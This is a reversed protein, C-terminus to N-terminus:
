GGRARAAAPSSPRWRPAPRLGSSHVPLYGAARACGAGAQCQTAFRMPLRAPRLWIPYRGPLLERHARIEPRLLLAPNVLIARYLAITRSVWAREAAYHHRALQIGSRAHRRLAGNSSALYPAIGREWDRPVRSAEKDRQAAHYRYRALITDAKRVPYKAAIRLFFEADAAYSIDERWPGVSRMVWARFFAAPQPIYTLKGVYEVLSFPPLSTRSGYVLALKPDESLADVASALAGPVYLDDSSQIAIIEGRARTLGKNVADVVGRDPASWWQLEPREGYARLVEITEDTSGGDMVLVEIPRYGQTLISDITERIYRGQNFSPVIVSVLPKAATM